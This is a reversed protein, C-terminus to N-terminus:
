RPTRKVGYPTRLLLIPWARSRDRPVYAVTYLKVGDRMPIRYEYKVFQEKVARAVEEPTNLEASLLPECAAKPQALAASLSCLLALAFLRVLHM